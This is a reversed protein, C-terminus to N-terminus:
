VRARRTTRKRGAGARAGGWGIFQMEVQRAKQMTMNVVAFVSSPQTPSLCDWVKRGCRKAFHHVRASSDDAQFLLRERPRCSAAIDIGCRLSEDSRDRCMRTGLSAVNLM